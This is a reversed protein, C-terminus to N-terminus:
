KSKKGENVDDAENTVEEVRPGSARSVTSVAVAPPRHRNQARGQFFRSAAFVVRDVSLGFCRISMAGAILLASMM